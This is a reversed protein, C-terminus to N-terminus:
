ARVLKDYLKDETVIDVVLHIREEDGGNIAMHPKRTDLFWCEGKKMHIKQPNGKTDWVTFEVKDNTKIPFHIRALKNKSGGSDPDVQDTHRELEGGGPKLRMFRVRHIKDGYNKLLEKVEEFQKFLETDQMYFDKDKNEEQWADSMEIPKTIFSPDSSYGRLSLASWSKGKNYNSYHNTFEPLTNLKNHISEIVNVDVNDVKRISLYEAPDVKPFERPKGRYYIAYVEGYTTIKPGVYCFGCEEAFQCHEKNEAWVYLWVDRPPLGHMDTPYDLCKKITELNGLLKGVTMDGKQKKAIVTDGHMTINSASKSETVELMADDLITLTGKFLSEAINNKKFKAFPSLTYKNYDEYQKELGKLYDIEFGRQWPKL